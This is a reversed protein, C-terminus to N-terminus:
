FFRPCFKKWTKQFHSVFLKSDRQLVSFSYFMRQTENWTTDSNLLRTEFRTSPTIGFTASNMCNKWQNWCTISGRLDFWLWVCSRSLNRYIIADYPPVSHPKIDSKNVKKPSDSLYFSKWTSFWIHFIGFKSNNKKKRQSSGIIVACIKFRDLTGIEQRISFTQKSTIIQSLNWEIALKPSLGSTMRRIYLGSPLWLQSTREQSWCCRHFLPSEERGCGDSAM